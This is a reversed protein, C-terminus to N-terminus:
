AWRRIASAAKEVERAYEPGSCWAREGRDDLCWRSLQSSWRWASAPERLRWWALPSRGQHPQAGVIRLLTSKGSGNPGVLCLVEDPKVSLNFDELVRKVQGKSGPFRMQVGKLECLYM